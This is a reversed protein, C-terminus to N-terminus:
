KKNVKFSYTLATGVVHYQRVYSKAYDPRYFYFVEARLQKTFDQRFGIQYRYNDIQLNNSVQYIPEFSMLVSSKNSFPFKARIRMRLFHDKDNEKIPDDFDQIQNQYLVRVDFKIKRFALDIDFGASYRNFTGKLVKALRYEAQLSFPKYIKKEVGFSYYYGNNQSINNNFRSQFTVDVTWKKPLDAEVNASFWGQVDIPDQKTAQSYISQFYFLFCVCLFLRNSIM